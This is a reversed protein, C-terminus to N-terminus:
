DLGQCVNTVRPIRVDDEFGNPEVDEGQDGPSQRGSLPFLQAGSIDKNPLLGLEFTTQFAPGVSSTPFHGSERDGM